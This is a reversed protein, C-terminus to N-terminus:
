LTDVHMFAVPLAHRMKLQLNPKGPLAGNALISHPKIANHRHPLHFREETLPPAQQAAVRFLPVLKYVDVSCTLLQVPCSRHFTRM